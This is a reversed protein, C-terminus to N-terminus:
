PATARVVERPLGTSVGGVATWSIRIGDNKLRSYDNPGAGTLNLIPYSVVSTVYGRKTASTVNMLYWQKQTAVNSTVLLPNYRVEFTFLSGNYNYPTSAAVSTGAATGATPVLAMPIGVLRIAKNFLAMTPVVILVKKVRNPDVLGDLFPARNLLDLGTALGAEDLDVTGADNSYVGLAPRVPNVPHVASFHTVGDWGIPNANIVNALELDWITRAGALVQMSDEELQILKYPDMLLQSQYLEVSQLPVLTKHQIEVKFVEPSGFQRDAGIQLETPASSMNSFELVSSKGTGPKFWSLQQALTSQTFDYTSWANEISKFLEDINQSSSIGIQGAM